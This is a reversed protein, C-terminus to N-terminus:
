LTFFSYLKGLGLAQWPCDLCISCWYLTSNSLTQVWSSSLSVPVWIFSSWAFSQPKKDQVCPQRELTKLLHVIHDSWGLKWTPSLIPLSLIPILSVLKNPLPRLCQFVSKGKACERVSLKLQLMFHMPCTKHAWMRTGKLGSEFMYKSPNVSLQTHQSM